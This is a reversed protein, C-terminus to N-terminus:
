KEQDDKKTMSQTFHTNIQSSFKKTYDDLTNRYVAKLVGDTSWGGRAMIYQDPIGLAHMISASYHRLDHFRFHKIGLKELVLAFSKTITSPSLNVIPGNCDKIMDIVFDPLDIYRDSSGTKTGKLVYDHQYGQVKACHVHIMNGDIDDSTLGCVESRRLTGFAALCVAKLLENNHEKLYSTIREVEKDTPISYEIIKKAPLNVNLKRSVGVLRLSSQLLMYANDITKASRIFTATAKGKKGTPMVALSNVWKQIDSDTLKNVLYGGIGDFCNKLGMYGKITSPSLVNRKIDIYSDIAKGVTINECRVVKNCATFESAMREAEKKTDATFSM